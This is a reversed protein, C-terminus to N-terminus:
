KKRKKTITKKTLWAMWIAIVVSLIITFSLSIEFGGRYFLYGAVLPAIAYGTDNVINKLAIFSGDERHDVDYEALAHDAAFNSMSNGIAIVVGVLILWSPINNIPLLLVGIAVLIWGWVHSARWNHRDAIYGFFVATAFFVLEYVGLTMGSIAETSGLSALHLPFVFWITGYFVGEFLANGILMMPYGDNKRIFNWGNKIPLLPNIANIIGKAKKRALKDEPIGIIGFANILAGILMAWAAFSQHGTIIFYPISLTSFFRALCYLSESLGFNVGGEKKQSMRLIYVEDTQRFSYSGLYLIGFISLVAINHMPLTLWVLAAGIMAVLGIYITKKSGIRDALTGALPNTLYAQILNFVGFFLGAIWANYYSAVVVAIVAYSLDSTYRAISQFTMLQLLKRHIKSSLWKSPM